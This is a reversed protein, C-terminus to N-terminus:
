RVILRGSWGAGGREDRVRVFYAGAPLREVNVTVAGGRVAYRQIMRGAMTYLTIIYDGAPPLPFTVAGATPNPFPRISWDGSEETTATTADPLHCAVGVADPDGGGPAPGAPHYRYLERGRTPGTAAYYAEGRLYGVFRPQGSADGANFEAAPVTGEVTGDTRWLENGAGPASAAFYTTGALNHLETMANLPTASRPGVLVKASDISSNVSLLGSGTPHNRYRAIVLLVDGPTNLIQEVNIILEDTALPVSTLEDTSPRYRYLYRGTTDAGAFYLHDHAATLHSPAYEHAPLRDRLRITGGPTGDTRLLAYGDPERVILYAIDGARTYWRVPAVWGAGVNIATLPALMQTGTTTGDSAYLAFGRPGPGTFLLTRENLTFSTFPSLDTVDNSLTLLPPVRGAGPDYAYLATGGDVRSGLYLIKGAHAIPRTMFTSNENLRPFSDVPLTGEPTADTRYLYIYGSTQARWYARDALTVPASPQSSNFGPAVDRLLQTGEGTGDSSFVERGTCEASAAFVLRDNVVGGRQPDSSGEDRDNVDLLLRAGDANAVWPELGYRPDSAMFYVRRGNRSFNRRADWGNSSSVPGPLIDRLRRTGEPRGDTIWPEVGAHDDYAQFILHNDELLRATTMVFLGPNRPSERSLLVTGEVTGDTRWLEQNGDVPRKRVLYSYPTGALFQVVNLGGRGAVLDRYLRPAGGESPVYYIEDGTAFKDATFFLTDRHVQLDGLNRGVNSPTFWELDLTGAETGDSEWLTSRQGNWPKTVFYLRDRFIRTQSFTIASASLLVASLRGERPEARYLTRTATAFFYTTAGNSIFATPNISGVDAYTTLHRTAGSSPAYEYVILERGKSVYLLVNGDLETAYELYASADGSDLSIETQEGNKLDTALLLHGDDRRSATILQHGLLYLNDLPWEALAGPAYRVPGGDPEARAYLAGFERYCESQYSFWCTYEDNSRLFSVECSSGTTQNINAALQQGTAPYPLLLGALVSLTLLRLLRDTM